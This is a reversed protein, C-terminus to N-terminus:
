GDGRRLDPAIYERDLPVMGSRLEGEIELKISFKHDSKDLECAWIHWPDTQEGQAHCYAEAKEITSFLAQKKRSWATEAIYVKM